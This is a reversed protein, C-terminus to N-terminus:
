HSVLVENYRSNVPIADSSATVDDTRKHKQRRAEQIIAEANTRICKKYTRCKDSHVKTLEANTRICKKYTRCKDSHVKTLEANTRICKKYTRCKDSHVKTPKANTRISNPLTTYKMKDM